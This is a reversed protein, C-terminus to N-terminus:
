LSPPILWLAINYSGPVPVHDAVPSMIVRPELEAVSSGSPLTSAAPKVPPSAQGNGTRAASYSGTVPVHLKVPLMFEHRQRESAVSIGSPLTSAVPPMPSGSLEEASSYSEAAPVQLVVASM